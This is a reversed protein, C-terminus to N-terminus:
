TKYTALQSVRATVSDGSVVPFPEVPHTLLGLKVAKPVVVPYRHIVEALDYVVGVAFRGM